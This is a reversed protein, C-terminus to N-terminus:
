SNVEFPLQFAQVLRDASETVESISEKSSIILFADGWLRGLLSAPDRELCSQLRKAVKILLQDGVLHGLSDNILKFRDCSLVLVAFHAQPDQSSRDLYRRLNELILRRNPLGTLGDHHAQYFLREQIQRREEIEQHIALTRQHVREELQQNLQQLERHLQRLQLHNRVRAIVEEVQFPKTIYDVAGLNLGQVKDAIDTLSTTFIVPIDQLDENLKLRRCTEFGDMKPMMVDLLILDPQAYAAQELASIGDLAVLVEAGADGLTRSLVELNAPLDDVILIVSPPLTFPDM